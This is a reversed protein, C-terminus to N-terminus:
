SPRPPALHNPAIQLFTIDTQSRGVTDRVAEGVSTSSPPVDTSVQVEALAVEQLLLPPEGPQVLGALGMEPLQVVRGSTAVAVYVIVQVPGPPVAEAEAETVTLGIM